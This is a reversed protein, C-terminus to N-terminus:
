CCKRELWTEEMSEDTSTIATMTTPPTVRSVSDLSLTVSRRGM